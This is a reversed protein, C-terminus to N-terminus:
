CLMIIYKTKIELLKIENKMSLYNSVLYDM